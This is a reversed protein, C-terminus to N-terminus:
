RFRAFVFAISYPESVTGHVGTIGARVMNTVPFQRRHGNPEFNSPAAGFSQLMDCLAGPLYENGGVGEVTLDSYSGGSLYGMVRKRGVVVHAGTARTRALAERTRPRLM